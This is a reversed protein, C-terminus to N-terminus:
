FAVGNECDASHVHSHIKKPASCLDEIRANTPISAKHLLIRLHHSDM